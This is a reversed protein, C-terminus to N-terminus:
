WRKVLSTLLEFFEFATGKRNDKKKQFAKEDNPFVATFATRWGVQLVFTSALSVVIFPTPPVHGIIFGRIALAIPLAVAWSRIAAASATKLGQLGQGEPGYGGAFYSGVFWGALFPDATRVTDWDLVSFGHSMRGVATFLLLFAVDGAALTRIRGWTPQPLDEREVQIVGGVKGDEDVVSVPKVPEQTPSSTPKIESRSIVPRWSTSRAGASFHHRKLIHGFNFLSLSSVKLEPTKCSPTKSPSISASFPRLQMAQSAM